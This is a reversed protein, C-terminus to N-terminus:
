SLYTSLFIPLYTPLYISLLYTPLYISLYQSLYLYIPLYFSQYTSLNISLCLLPYSLTIKSLSLTPSLLYSGVWAMRCNRIIQDNSAKTTIFCIILFIHMFGWNHKVCNTFPMLFLTRWYKCQLMDRTLISWIYPKNKRIGNEERSLDTWLQRLDHTLELGGVTEQQRSRRELVVEVLEPGQEVEEERVDEVRWDVKVGPEACLVTQSVVTKDLSQVSYTHFCLRPLDMFIGRSFHVM